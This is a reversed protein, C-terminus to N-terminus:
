KTEQSSRISETEIRIVLYLVALALESFNFKRHCQHMILADSLQMVERYYRYSHGEPSRLVVPNGTEEESRLGLLGSSQAHKDWKQSFYDCWFPLTHFNLKFGLGLIIASEAEIVEDRTLGSGSGSLINLM